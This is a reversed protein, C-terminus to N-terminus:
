ADPREHRGPRDAPTSVRETALSPGAKTTANVALSKAASLIAAVAAASLAGQWRVSALDTVGVGLVSILTWAFSSVAREVLAKWFDVSWV